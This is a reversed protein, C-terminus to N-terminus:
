RLRSVPRYQTSRYAGVVALLSRFIWYLDSIATARRYYQLDLEAKQQFLVQEYFSKMDGGPPYMENEDRFVSQSPGFIGPLYDLLVRYRGSFCHEFQPIEPRPGVVSMEGRLINVLQPLENLKTKDLIKGVTSYREDSRTLLM